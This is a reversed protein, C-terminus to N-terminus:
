EESDQDPRQSPSPTDADMVRLGGEHADFEWGAGHHGPLAREVGRYVRGAADELKHETELLSEVVRAMRGAALRGEPSFRRDDRLYRLVRWMSRLVYFGIGVWMGIILYGIRQDAIVAVGTQGELRFHIFAHNLLAFSASLLICLWPGPNNSRLLFHTRQLTTYSVYMWTGVLLLYAILSPVLGAQDRLAGVFDHAGGLVIIGVVFLHLERLVPGDRIPNFARVLWWGGLVATGILSAYWFYPAPLANPPWILPQAVALGIVFILPASQWVRSRFEFMRHVDFVMEELVFVLNFGAIAIVGFSSLLTIIAFDDMDFALPAWATAAYLFAVIAGSVLFARRAPGLWLAGAAVLFFLSLLPGVRAVLPWTAPWIIPLITTFLLISLTAIVWGRLPSRHFDDGEERRSRLLPERQEDAPSAPPAM